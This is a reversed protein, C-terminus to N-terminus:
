KSSRKMKVAERFRNAVGETVFYGRGNCSRVDKRDEATTNVLLGHAFTSDWSSAFMLGSKPDFDMVSWTYYFDQVHLLRANKGDVQYEYRKLIFWQDPRPEHEPAGRVFVHLKDKWSIILQLNALPEIDPKRDFILEEFPSEVRAIWWHESDRFLAVFKGDSVWGVTNVNTPLITRDAFQLPTRRNGSWSTWFVPVGEDNLRSQGPLDKLSVGNSAVTALRYRTGVGYHDAHDDFEVFLLDGRTSRSISASHNNPFGLNEL